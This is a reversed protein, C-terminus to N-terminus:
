DRLLVLYPGLEAVLIILVHRQSSVGSHDSASSRSTASHKIIIIIIIILVAVVASVPCRANNFHRFQGYSVLMHQVDSPYMSLFANTQPLVEHFVMQFVSFILISHILINPSSIQFILAAFLPESDHGIVSM